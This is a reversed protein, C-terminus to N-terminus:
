GGEDIEEPDAVVSNSEGVGFVIEVEEIQSTCAAENGTTGATEAEDLMASAQEKSADSLESAEIAARFKQAKASCDTQALTPSSVAATALVAALFQKM